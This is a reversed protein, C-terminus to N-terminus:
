IKEIEVTLGWTNQLQDKHLQAKEKSEVQAIARGRQHAEWMIKAALQEDHGFVKRLARVVVDMPTVDDNWLIVQWQSDFDEGLGLDHLLEVDNDTVTATM